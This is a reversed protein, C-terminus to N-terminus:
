VNSNRIVEYAFNKAALDNLCHVIRSCSTTDIRSVNLCSRYRVM